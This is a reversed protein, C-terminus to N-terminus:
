NEEIHLIGKNRLHKILEPAEHKDPLIHIELIEGTEEDIVLDAVHVEYVAQSRSPGRRELVAELVRGDYYWRTRGGGVEGLGRRRM